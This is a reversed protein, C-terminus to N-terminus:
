TLNEGPSCVAFASPRTNAIHLDQSLWAANSQHQSCTEDPERRGALGGEKLQQGARAFRRAGPPLALGVDADRADGVLPEIPKVASKLGRLCTGAVTSNASMAPRVGSPRWPVARRRATECRPRARQVDHAREAIGRHRMRAAAISGARSTRAISSSSIRASRPTTSRRSSRSSFLDSSPRLGRLQLCSCSIRARQRAASSAPLRQAREAAPRRRGAAARTETGRPWAAARQHQIEVFRVRRVRFVDARQAPRSVNM